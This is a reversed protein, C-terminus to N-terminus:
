DAPRILATMDRRKYGRKHKTADEAVEVKTSYTVAKAVVPEPDVAPEVVEKVVVPEKPPTVEKTLEASGIAILLKAHGEEAEFVEGAKRAVLYSLPKLATIKVKM